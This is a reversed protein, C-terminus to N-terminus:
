RPAPGLWVAGGPGDHGAVVVEDGAFVPVGIQRGFGGFVGATRRTWTAGGDTSGHVVLDDGERGTVVM